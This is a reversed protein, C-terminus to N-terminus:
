NGMDELDNYAEVLHKKLFEENSAKSVWKSFGDEGVNHELYYKIIEKHYEHYFQKVTILSEHESVNISKVYESITLPQVGEINNDWNILRKESRIAMIPNAEELPASGNIVSSSDWNILRGSNMSTKSSKKSTTKSTNLPTQLPQKATQLRQKPLSLADTATTQEDTATTKAIFFAENVRYKNGVQILLNKSLLKKKLERVSQTTKYSLIKRFYETSVKCLKNKSNKCFAEVKILFTKEALLLDEDKEIASILEIHNNM